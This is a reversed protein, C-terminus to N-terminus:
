GVWEHRAGPTQARRAPTDEPAEMTAVTEPTSQGAEAGDGPAPQRRGEGDGSTLLSFDVTTDYEAQLTQQLRDAQAAALARLEPDSFGVTVAVRGDERRARVTMTGDGEDLKMELVKWGDGM